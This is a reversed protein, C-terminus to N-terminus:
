EKNENIISDTKVELWNIILRTNRSANDNQKENKAATTKIYVIIRILKCTMFYTHRMYFSQLFSFM